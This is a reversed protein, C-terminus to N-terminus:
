PVPESLKQSHRVKLYVPLSSDSPSPFLKDRLHLVPYEILVSMAVGVVLSEALFLSAKEGHSLSLHLLSRARGVLYAGVAGHWLYISYSYVGIKAFATGASSVLTKLAQPLVNHTFLSLLLMGGCGLYILVYGIAGFFWTERDFWYAFSLFAISLVGVLVRVSRPQILRELAERRFHYAYGLLVGFFLADIRNHSAYYVRDFRPPVSFASIARSIQCFVAVVLFTAPIRRFPDIKDSSSWLLALLFFPLLIYFHEEVALSWTHGWIGGLYNQVFFIEHLYASLPSMRLFFLQVVATFAVYIYFAPYIKLGRRILFRRMQISGSRKYEAFLLGSILFGSLVFFLDVGIWGARIFFVSAEGHQFIVFLIAVCRLVDLRKNRM